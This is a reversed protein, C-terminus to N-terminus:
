LGAQYAVVHGDQSAHRRSASPLGSSSVAITWLIGFNEKERGYGGQYRHPSSLMECVSAFSDTVTMM